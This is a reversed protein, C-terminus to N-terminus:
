LLELVVESYTNDNGVSYNIVRAPGSIAGGIQRDLQVVQFQRITMRNGNNDVQILGMSVRRRPVKYYDLLLDGFYEASVADAYLIQNGALNGFSGADFPTLAQYAGDSLVAPDFESLQKQVIGVENGDAFLNNYAFAIPNEGSSAYGDGQGPHVMRNDDIINLPTFGNWGPGDFVAITGDEAESLYGGTAATIRTLYQALTVNNEATVNVWLKAGLGEQKDILSQFSATDIQTELGYFALAADLARFMLEAPTLVIPVSIIVPAGDALDFELGRDIQLTSTAGAADVVQYRPLLAQSFAVTAVGGFDEDVGAISIQTSGAGHFGAVTGFIKRNEEVPFDSIAGLVSQCTLTVVMGATDSEMRGVSRVFGAFVLRGEDDFVDVAANRWGNVNTDLVGGTLPGLFNDNDACTITRQAPQYSQQSFRASENGIDLVRDTLDLIGFIQVRV